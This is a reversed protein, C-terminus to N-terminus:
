RRATAAQLKNVPPLPALPRFPRNQQTIQRKPQQARNQSSDNENLRKHGSGHNNFITSVRGHLHPHGRGRLHAHGHHRACDHHQLQLM